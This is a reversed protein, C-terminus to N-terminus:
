ARLKRSGKQESPSSQNSVDTNAVETHWRLVLIFDHAVIFVSEKPGHAAPAQVTQTRVVHERRVLFLHSHAKFM